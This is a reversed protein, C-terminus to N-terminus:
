DEIVIILVALAAGVVVSLLTFAAVTKLSALIIASTM